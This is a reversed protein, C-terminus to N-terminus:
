IEEGYPSNIYEDLLKDYTRIGEESMEMEEGFFRDKIAEVVIFLDSDDQIESKFLERIRNEDVQSHMLAWVKYASIAIAALKGPYKEKDEYVLLRAGVVESMKM